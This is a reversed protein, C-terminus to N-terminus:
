PASAIGLAHPPIAIGLPDFHDNWRWKAGLRWISAPKLYDWNQFDTSCPKSNKKQLKSIRAECFHLWNKALEWFDPKVFTFGFFLWFFLWFVGNYLTKVNYHIKFGRKKVNKRSWKQSALNKLVQLFNAQSKPLGPKSFVTKQEQFDTNWSRSALKKFAKLFWAECFHM